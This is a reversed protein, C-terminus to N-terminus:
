EFIYYGIEFEYTVPNKAICYIRKKAADISIWANDRDTHYSGIKHGTEDLVLIDNALWEEDQYEKRTRGSFLLYIKDDVFDASCIGSITNITSADDVHEVPEYETFLLKPGSADLKYVEYYYGLPSHYLIIDRDNNIQLVGQYLFFPHSSVELDSPYAGAYRVGSPSLFALKGSQFPGIAVQLTDNVNYMIEISGDTQGDFQSYMLRRTPQFSNRGVISDMDYFLIKRNSLDAIQFEKQGKKDFFPGYLVDDPGEGKQAGSLVPKLTNLNYVTYNLGEVPDYVLLLSDFVDMAIPKFLSENLDLLHFKLEGLREFGYQHVLSEKEANCGLFMCTVIFLYLKKVM